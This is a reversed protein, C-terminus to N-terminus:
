RNIWDEFVKSHQNSDSANMWLQPYSQHEYVIKYHEKLFEKEM